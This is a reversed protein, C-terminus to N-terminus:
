QEMLGVEHYAIGLNCHTELDEGESAVEGVESRFQDFASPHKAARARPADAAATPMAGPLSKQPPM